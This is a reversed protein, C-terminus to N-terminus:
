ELKARGEVTAAENCFTKSLRPSDFGSDHQAIIAAAKAEM